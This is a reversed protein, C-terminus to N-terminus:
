IGSVEKKYCAYMEIGSYSVTNEIARNNGLPLIIKYIIANDRMVAVTRDRTDKEYSHSCEKSNFKHIWM